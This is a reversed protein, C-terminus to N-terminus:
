GHPDLGKLNRAVYDLLSDRPIRRCRGVKAYPVLGRDMLEYLHSRSIALFEMAQEVSLLGGEVLARATKTDM